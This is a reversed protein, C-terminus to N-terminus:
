CASIFSIGASWTDLLTLSWGKHQQEKQQLLCKLHGISSTKLSVLSWWNFGFSILFIFQLILKQNPHSAIVWTITELKHSCEIVFDELMDLCPVIWLTYYPWLIHVHLHRSDHPGLSEIILFIEEAACSALILICTVASGLLFDYIRHSLKLCECLSGFDWSGKLNCIRPSHTVKHVDIQRHQYGQELTDSLSVGSTDEIYIVVNSCHFYNFIFVDHHKHM